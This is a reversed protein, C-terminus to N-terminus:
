DRKEVPIKKESSIRRFVLYAPIALAAGLAMGALVDSPWHVGIYIRSFSVLLMVVVPLAAWRRYALALFLMSSTINAAHSSPFSFSSKFGGIAEPPTVIWGEPGYWFHVSGLVECPRMREVLPKIVQSSLQDSAAVLLIIMLGAWRGKQGGFIVLAAWVLIVIIRSRRFDTVVPMLFDLLRNRISGNLVRFIRVDLSNEDARRATVASRSAAATMSDAQAARMSEARILGASDTEVAQLSPVGHSTSSRVPSLDAEVPIASVILLLLTICISLKMAPIYGTNMCSYVCMKLDPGTIQTLSCPGLPGHDISLGKSAGGL